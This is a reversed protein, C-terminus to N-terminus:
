LSNNNNDITETVDHTYEYPDLSEPQFHSFQDNLSQVLDKSKELLQQLRKRYKKSDAITSKTPLVTRWFTLGKEFMGALNEPINLQRQREFLQSMILKAHVKGVIMHLPLLLAILILLFLPGIIPDILLDLVGMTIEAFLLLTVLFGLVILTTMNTRDKWTEIAARVEPVYVDEVARISKELVNLIRYSRDTNLNNIRRQISSLDGAQTLVVFEGTTIGLELLRRRWTGIIEAIRSTELSLESHDIVFLFKNSDQNAIITAVTEKILEQEAEFLDTFVLVLDSMEITKDLLLQVVQQNAQAGLVPTDVLLKGKVAESNVTVLELYANLKSGEGPALQEIERSVQYFPLRHDADVATGPLTASTSQSAYQFVTFKHPNSYASNQLFRTLFENKSPTHGGVTSIIPWWSVKRATTEDEDLLGLDYELQDLEHFTRLAKQLAPNGSAFFKELQALHKSVTKEAM